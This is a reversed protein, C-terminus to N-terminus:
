PVQDFTEIEEYTVYDTRFKWYLWCAAAAASIVLNDILGPHVGLISITLISTFFGTLYTVLLVKKRLENRHTMKAFALFGAEGAYLVTYFIQAGATGLARAIPGAGSPPTIYLAVISYLLAFVIIWSITAFFKDWAFIKTM